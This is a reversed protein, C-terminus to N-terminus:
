LEEENLVELEDAVCAVGARNAPWGDPRVHYPAPRSPQYDYVTGIQGCLSGLATIRVRTGIALPLTAPKQLESEYAFTEVGTDPYRVTYLWEQVDCSETPPLGVVVVVPVGRYLAPTGDPFTTSGQESTVAEERRCVVCCWGGGGPQDQHTWCYDENIPTGPPLAMIAAVEDNVHAFYAALNKAEERSLQESM